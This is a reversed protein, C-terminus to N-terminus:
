RPGDGARKEAGIAGPGTTCERGPVRGAAGSQQRLPRAGLFLKHRLSRELLAASPFTSGPCVEDSRMNGMMPLARRRRPPATPRGPGSRM